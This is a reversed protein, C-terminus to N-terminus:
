MFVLNLPAWSNGVTAEDFATGRVAPPVARCVTSPNSNSLGAVTSPAFTFPESYM